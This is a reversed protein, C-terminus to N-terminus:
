LDTFGLEGWLLETSGMQLRTAAWYMGTCGMMRTLMTMGTFGEKQCVACSVEDQKHWIESSQDIFTLCGIVHGKVWEFDITLAKLMALAKMEQDIIM